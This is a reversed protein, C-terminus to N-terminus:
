MGLIASKAEDNARDFAETVSDTRYCDEGNALLGGNVFVEYTGLPDQTVIIEVPHAEGPVKVTIKATTTM